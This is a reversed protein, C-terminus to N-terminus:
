KIVMQTDFPDPARVLYTPSRLAKRSSRAVRGAVQTFEREELIVTCSLGCQFATSWGDLASQVSSLIMVRISGNELRPLVERVNTPAYVIETPWSRALEISYAMTQAEEVCGCVLIHPLDLHHNLFSFISKRIQGNKVMGSKAREVMLEHMVESYARDMSMVLSVLQAHDMTALSELTVPM